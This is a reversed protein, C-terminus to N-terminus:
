RVERAISLLRDGGKQFEYPARQTESPYGQTRLKIVVPHLAPVAVWRLVTAPFCLSRWRSQVDGRHFRRPTQRSNSPTPSLFYSSLAWTSSVM